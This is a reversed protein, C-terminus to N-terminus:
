CVPGTGTVKGKHMGTTCVDGSHADRPPFLCWHQGQFLLGDGAVQSNEGTRM